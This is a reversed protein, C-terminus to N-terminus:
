IIVCENMSLVESPHQADMWVTLLGVQLRSIFRLTKYTSTEVEHQPSFRYVLGTQLHM